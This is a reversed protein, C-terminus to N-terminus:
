LELLHFLLMRSQLFYGFFSLSPNTVPAVGIGHVAKTTEVVKTVANVAATVAAAGSVLGIVTGCYFLGAAIVKAATGNPFAIVIVSHLM